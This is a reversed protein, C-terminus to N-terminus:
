LYRKVLAVNGKIPLDDVVEFKFGPIEREKLEVYEQRSLGGTLQIVPKLDVVKKAENITDNLVRNMSKLMAALMEKKTAGLTLGNWAGTKQELSQRDGTLYPAFTVMGDEKWENLAEPIYERYFEKESMEACFQEFFWDIGFGGATTAYIQWLGPIAANRLYYHPNTVPKDTIISVMDSSGATNMICGSETNGAGVQAAAMDNTGVAVPIGSPLGLKEAQEPLLTGFVQGPNKIESFWEPNFDFADLLTKSWTGQKTTEYLGLMSANVLDVMWEGTLTHHIFTPLHGIRYTDELYQPQTQKFWLLTMVGAGGPFPYIGTIDLFKDKGFENVIYDTQARSRRDMHTIINPYSLNGDEKILVPSPSFTDYCVLSVKERLEPDIKNAAEYIGNFLDDPKIENKNGDLIIYPYSAKSWQITELEENVVSIKTSSTGIDISLFLM